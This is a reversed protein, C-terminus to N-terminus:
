PTRVEMPAIDHSLNGSTFAVVASPDKGLWRPLWGDDPVRGLTAERDLLVRTV